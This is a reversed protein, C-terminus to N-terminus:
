WHGRYFVLLVAKKGEFSSLTVRASGLGALTFDPARTGVAVRTTDTPPLGAGDVPGLRQAGAPRAAGLALLLGGALGLKVSSIMRIM